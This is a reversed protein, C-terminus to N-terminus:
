VKLYEEWIKFLKHTAVIDRGCYVAIDKIRGAQYLNQVEMGSIEHSKPTQVGFAHCYFDLNFKRTASYFTFQELLDVHLKTDFRYGMFNKSPKVKLMASRMMLFPIDFNRGNFTIVQDTKEMVHWFRELMVNENFGKYVIKGDESHWEEETEEGNASEYYVFSKENQVDFMGIAVVKATFPYLSLFREADDIKQQRLTEDTEKLAERLLYEQQSESLETLKCGSTEIDFVIQRIKKAAM